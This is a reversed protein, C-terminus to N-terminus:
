KKVKAIFFTPDYEVFLTREIYLETEPDLDQVFENLENAIGKIHDFSKDDFDDPQDTIKYLPCEVDGLNFLLAKGNFTQIGNCYGPGDVAVFKLNKATVRFMAAHASSTM